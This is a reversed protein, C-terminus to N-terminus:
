ELVWDALGRPTGLDRYSGEPYPLARGTLGAALASEVHPGISLSGLQPDGAVRAALWDQFAESMGVLGWTNDPCPGSPKELVRVLRDGEHEVPGLAHAHDTPFVALTLDADDGAVSTLAEVPDFLADPLVVVARGRIWPTATLVANTLGTPEAQVVWALELGLAAGDALRRVLDAKDPSIVIVARSMGARKVVHLAHVLAPIPMLGHETPEFVVPLLEKTVGGLRSAVGAAPLVATTM